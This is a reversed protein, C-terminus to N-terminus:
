EFEICHLVLRAGLYQNGAPDPVPGFDVAGQPMMDVAGTITDNDHIADLISEFAAVMDDYFDLGTRGTGIQTFLFTYNLDYEVTKQAATSSGFTDRTSTYNTVYNLPEPILCPVLRTCDPPIKDLDVIVVGSVALDSLSHAITSISTDM